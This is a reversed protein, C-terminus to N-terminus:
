TSLLSLDLFVVLVEQRNWSLFGLACSILISSQCYPLCGMLLDIFGGECGDERLGCSGSTVTGCTCVLPNVDRTVQSRKNWDRSGRRAQKKKKKRKESSYREEAGRSSM